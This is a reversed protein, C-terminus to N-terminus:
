RGLPLYMCLGSGSTCSENVIQTGPCTDIRENGIFTFLGVAKGVKELSFSFFKGDM